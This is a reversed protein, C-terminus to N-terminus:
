QKTKISKTCIWHCPKGEIKFGNPCGASEISRGALIYSDVVYSELHAKHEIYHLLNQNKLHELILNKLMKTDPEECLYTKVDPSFQQMLGAKIDLQSLLKQQITSLTQAFMALQGM